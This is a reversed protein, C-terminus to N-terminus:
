KKEKKVQEILRQDLLEQTLELVARTLIKLEPSLLISKKYEAFELAAKRMTKLRRESIM